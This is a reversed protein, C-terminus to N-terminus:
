FVALSDSYVLLPIGPLLEVTYTPNSIRNVRPVQYIEEFLIFKSFLADSQSGCFIPALLNSLIKMKFIQIDWVEWIYTICCVCMCVCTRTLMHVCVCFCVECVKQENFPKLVFWLNLSQFLTPVIICRSQRTNEYTILFHSEIHILSMFLISFM